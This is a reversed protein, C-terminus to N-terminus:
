IHWGRLFKERCYDHGKDLYEKRSISQKHMTNAEIENRVFRAAGRWAYTTPSEPVHLTYSWDSPMLSRLERDFRSTLNPIHANGGTFVINASAAYAEM